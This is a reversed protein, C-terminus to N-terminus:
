RAIGKWVLDVVLEVDEDVSRPSLGRLRQVIVSRTLDFVAQAIADAPLTRAEGSAQGAALTAALMAVQERAHAELRAQLEAPGDRPVPQSLYLSFFARHATCFRLKSAVFARLKAALGDAAAVAAETVARLEAVYHEHTARYIEDKSRFYLYITGKAVGAVRAIEEITAGAYGREAFVEEAARLIESSRFEIVVDRKTRRLGDGGARSSGGTM